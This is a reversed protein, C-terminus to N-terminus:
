NTSTANRMPMLPRLQIMSATVSGDANTTGNVVVDSGTSIDNLTGDTIKGIKTSSSFIVIKSGNDRQQITLSTSDKSLVSGQVFGGGGMGRAGGMSGNTGGRMGGQRFGGPGGAAENQAMTRSPTRSSQYIMGGYFSGGALVLGIMALIPTSLPLHKM